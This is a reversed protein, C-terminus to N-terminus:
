NNIIMLLTGTIIKIQAENEEIINSLGLTEGRKLNGNELEYKFGILNVGTVENSLPLFSVTKQAKEEITKRGKIVEIHNNPTIIKVDVNERFVGELLYLNALAHDFRKGLAAFLIVEEYGEDIVLELLLQTDSKDKEIPFRKFKINHQQYFQIVEESISDLDGLILEPILDLQYTYEAGGDACFITDDDKIHNQYFEKDGKLEGNLFIVARSM